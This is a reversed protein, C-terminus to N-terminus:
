LYDRIYAIAQDHMSQQDVLRKGMRPDTITKDNGSGGGGNYCLQGSICNLLSAAFDANGAQLKSPLVDFIRKIKQRPLCKPQRTLPDIKYIDDPNSCPGSFDLIESSEFFSQNKKLFQSIHLFYRSHWSQSMKWRSTGFCTRTSVSFGCLYSHKNTSGM